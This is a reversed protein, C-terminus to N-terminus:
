GSTATLRAWHHEALNATRTERHTRSQIVVPLVGVGAISMFSLM